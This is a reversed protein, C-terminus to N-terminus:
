KLIAGVKHYDRTSSVLWNWSRFVNCLKTKFAALCEQFIGILLSNWLIACVTLITGVFFIEKNDLLIFIKIKTGRFIICDSKESM